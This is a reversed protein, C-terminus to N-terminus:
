SRMISDFLYDDNLEKRLDQELIYFVIPRDRDEVENGFMTWIMSYIIRWTGGALGCGIKFPFAISYKTAYTKENEYGAAEKEELQRKLDYLGGFFAEYDTQRLQTGIDFQGFLNCVANYEAPNEVQILQSTGLLNTRYSPQSFSNVKHRYENYVDPFKYKIQRALGAGMVGQCNTQHVIVNVGDKFAKTIDGVWFHFNVPQNFRYDFFLKRTIDTDVIKKM